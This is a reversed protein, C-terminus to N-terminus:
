RRSTAAPSTGSGSSPARRPSAWRRSGASPWSRRGAAPSGAFSGAARRSPWCWTRGCRSSASSARWRGTRPASASPWRPARERRGDAAGAGARRPAAAAWTGVREGNRLVTIRDSVAHTQELFHTIFVIGLGRARLERMVGFLRECEEPDLSSTPEDLVLVRANLELARALAVMQRVAAPYDALTRTPDVQVGLRALAARAQQNV